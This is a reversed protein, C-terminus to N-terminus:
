DENLQERYALIFDKGTPRKKQFIEVPTIKINSCCGEWTTVDAIWKYGALRINRVKINM